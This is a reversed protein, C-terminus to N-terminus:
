EDRLVLPQSLHSGKTAVGNADDTRRIVTVFGARTCRHKRERQLALLAVNYLAHRNTIVRVRFSQHGSTLNGNLHRLKSHADFPPLHMNHIYPSEKTATQPYLDHSRKKRFLQYRTPRQSRSFGEEPYHSVPAAEQRWPQRELVNSTCM